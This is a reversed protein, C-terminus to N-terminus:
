SLKTGSAVLQGATLLGAPKTREMAQANYSANADANPGCDSCDPKAGADTGVSQRGDHAAVVKGKPLAGPHGPVFQHQQGALRAKIQETSPDHKM